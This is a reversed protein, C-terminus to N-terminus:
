SGTLVSLSGLMDFIMATYYELLFIELPTIKRRHTNIIIVGMGCFALKLVFYQAILLIYVSLISIFSIGCNTQM